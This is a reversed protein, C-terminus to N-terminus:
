ESPQQVSATALTEAICVLEKRSSVGLKGYLNKNHFKLTNEKINLETMIQKTSKRDLYHDYIIRETRTLQTLGFSFREMCEKSIRNSSLQIEEQQPDLQQTAEAQSNLNQLASAKLRENETMILNQGLLFLESIIYSVSLIEFNIRVLQEILWVGLNVFVAIALITVHSANDLRNRVAAFIIAAIMAVFYGMLYILYLCHWTGYIKKLVSVGNITELAVEKYYITLYGPSAAVLFVITGIVLLIRPLWKSYNAKMARLIIMFMSIPLFVSGLYSIRNAFLATNLTASISLVYYGINVVLVSSFLVMFWIDKKVAISYYGILLLLALVATAGYIVSMSVDKDGIRSCGSLLVTLVVIWSVFRINRKM